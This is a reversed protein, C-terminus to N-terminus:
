GCQAPQSYTMVLEGEEIPGEADTHRNYVTVGDSYVPEDNDDYAINWDMTPSVRYGDCSYYRNGEIYPCLDYSDDGFATGDEKYVISLGWRTGRPAVEGDRAAIAAEVIARDSTTKVAAAAAGSAPADWISRVTPNEWEAMAARKESTRRFCARLMRGADGASMSYEDCLAATSCHHVMGRDGAGGLADVMQCYDLTDWRLHEHWVEDLERSCAAGIPSPVNDGAGNTYKLGHRVDCGDNHKDLQIKLRIFHVYERLAVLAYASDVEPERPRAGRRMENIARQVNQVFSDAFEWSDLSLDGAHNPLLAVTYTWRCRVFGSLLEGAGEFCAPSQLHVFEPAGLKACMEAYHKTSYLLHEEWLNVTDASAPSEDGAQIRRAIEAKHKRLAELPPPPNRGPFHLKAVRDLLAQPFEQTVPVAAPEDAIAKQCYPCALKGSWRTMSRQRAFEANACSKCVGSGSSCCSEGATTRFMTQSRADSEGYPEECMSCTIEDLDAQAQKGAAVQLRLSAAERALDGNEKKVEVLQTTRQALAAAAMGGSSSSGGGGSAGNDGDLRRRKPVSETLDIVPRPITSRRQAEQLAFVKARLSALEDQEDVYKKWRAELEYKLGSTALGRKSLNFKLEKVSLM